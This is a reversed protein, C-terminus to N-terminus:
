GREREMNWMQWKTARAYATAQRWDAQYPKHYKHKLTGIRISREQDKSPQNSIRKYAM